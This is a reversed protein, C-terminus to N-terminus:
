IAPRPMTFADIALRKHNATIASDIGASGEALGTSGLGAGGASVGVGDGVGAGAGAGEGTGVEAGVAVSGVGGGARGNVM